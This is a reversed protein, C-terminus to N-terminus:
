LSWPNSKRYDPSTPPDPEKSTQGLKLWEDWERKYEEHWWYAHKYTLEAGYPHKTRREIEHEYEITGHLATVEEMMVHEMSLALAQGM